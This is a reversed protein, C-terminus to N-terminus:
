GVDIVIKGFISPNNLARYAGPLDAFPLRADLVPRLQHEVVFASLDRHMQVSGVAIGRISAQKGVLTMADLPQPQMDILGPVAVEGGPRLALLCENTIGPGVSNVVKDAGGYTDAFRQGWGPADTSSLSRVDLPGWRQDQAGSRVAVHVEAGAARALQAAFLALGGSGLVLVRQGSQVPHAGFLSNWATVGAVQLTAAEAHDLHAPARVLATADVLVLEAAMGPDDLSGPGPGFAPPPGDTWAPVHATTVRDGPAWGTVDPGVTDIEGAVDSLPVLDRGPLRGFPGAIIMRDRANISLARTRLRVQGPGPQPPEVEHLVLDEPTSADAPLTWRKM